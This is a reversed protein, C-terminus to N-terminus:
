EPSVHMYHCEQGPFTLWGMAQGTEGLLWMQRAEAMWATPATRADEPSTVLMRGLLHGKEGGLWCGALHEHPFSLSQQLNYEM